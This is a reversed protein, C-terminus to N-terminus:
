IKIQVYGLDAYRDVGARAEEATTVLVDTTGQAPNPAYILGALVIRPAMDLGEDIRKRKSLLTDLGNGLDRGTTVGAAIDLIGQREGFHQHMDWLGPLLTKGTADIIKVNRPRENPDARTVSEIHNGSITVNQHPRRATEADFLNANYFV